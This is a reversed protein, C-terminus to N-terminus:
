ADQNFGWVVRKSQAQKKLLLLYEKETMYIERLQNCIGDYFTNLTLNENWTIYQELEFIM